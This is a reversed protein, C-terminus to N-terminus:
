LETKAVAAPVSGSGSGSPSGPKGPPLELPKPAVAEIPEAASASASAPPKPAPKAGRRARAEEKRRRREAQLRKWEERRQQAREARRRRAIEAPGLRPDNMIRAEAEMKAIDEDEKKLAADFAAPGGPYSVRASPPLSRLSGGASPPPTPLPIPLQGPKRDINNVTILVVEPQQLIFDEARAVSVAGSATCILKSKGIPYIKTEIAAVSM